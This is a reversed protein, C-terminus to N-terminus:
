NRLYTSKLYFPNDLSIEKNRNVIKGTLLPEIEDYAELFKEKNEKGRAM